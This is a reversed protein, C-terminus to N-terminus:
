NMKNSRIKANAGEIIRRLRADKQGLMRRKFFPSKAMNELEM